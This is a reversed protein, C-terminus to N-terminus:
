RAEQYYRRAGPHLELPAVEQATAIDLNTAEPHVKVLEAKKQFLLRTLEYALDENMTRPVVLFNAVGITAVDGALGEYASGSIPATTYVQGYRQQLPEVYEATPLLVLKRDAALDKVAATPLGGSWFFADLSGQEIAKVSETVGLQQANIDTAPDLGAAALIRRAIVETGSPHAGTSVRKGRLDEISHLGKDATTVVQTYNVYLRALAMAPVARHFSGKGQVADGATDALTFALDAKGDAIMTMNAVSGTTETTTAQYGDLTAGILKGLGGGYVFYVGGTAGTAVHLQRSAGSGGGTGCAALLLAAGLWLAPARTRRRV